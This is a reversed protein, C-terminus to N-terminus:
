ENTCRGYDLLFNELVSLAKRVKVGALAKCVLAVWFFTEDANAYLYNSIKERLEAQYGKSETLKSVKFDIFVNVARSIYYSNLELSIKACSDTPRLREEIDPRNRSSVLWKVRASGSSNRAILDLLRPLESDCEDLDDVMLYVRGASWAQAVDSLIASLAYLANGDEFLGKGTTDYRKRVYPILSSHQDVLLYILGRLVSVANNLRAETGQCFFYSLIDSGSESELQKSLEEVLSILMTKGKGPDGKIWLLHTNDDDRWTKFAPDDLIWM